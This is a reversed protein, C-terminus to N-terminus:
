PRQLDSREDAFNARTECPGAISISVYGVFTAGLGLTIVLALIVNKM